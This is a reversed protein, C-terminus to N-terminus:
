GNEKLYINELRRAQNNIDFEVPLRLIERRKGIQNFIENKWKEIPENLSIRSIGEGDLEDAITDSIICPLGNCYAEVLSVPFGEFHSPLVFIDMANLLQEVDDRRGMFVVKDEIKLKAAKEKMKELLVGDGICLLRLNSSKLCCEKFVDLLWEHNKQQVFRGVHGIVITQNSIELQKRNLNRQQSDFEYKKCDIANSLIIVKGSDLMNKGYLFEGAEKSCAIRTCKMFHIPLCLICNRIAPLPRDSYQTAHCHVIFNQIGMQTAIPKLLFTLYVEHNHFWQYEGEHLRLFNEIERKSGRFLGPKSIFFVRGGLKKIEEEYSDECHLFCLFDFQIRSRDLHRYYNMIVSMVGSWRAPVSVFHLVKIMVYGGHVRISTRGIILTIAVLKQYYVM